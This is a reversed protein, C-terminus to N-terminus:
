ESRLALTPDISAARRAPLLGAALGAAFLVITACVITLPDSPALGFLTSKILRAAGLAAPVGLAAGVLLLLLTERLILWLV